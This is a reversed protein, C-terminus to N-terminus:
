KHSMNDGVLLEGEYPTRPFFGRLIDSEEDDTEAVQVEKWTEKFKPSAYFKQLETSNGPRRKLLRFMRGFKWIDWVNALDLLGDVDLAIAESRLAELEAQGGERELPDPGPQATEASGAKELDEGIPLLRSQDNLVDSEETMEFDSGGSLDLDAESSLDMGSESTPSEDQGSLQRRGDEIFDAVAKFGIWNSVDDFYDRFMLAILRWIEEDEPHPVIKIKEVDIHGLREIFPQNDLVVQQTRKFRKDIPEANSARRILTTVMDFAEAQNGKHDTQVNVPNLDTLLQRLVDHAWSWRFFLLRGLSDLSGPERAEHASEPQIFENVLELLLTREFPLLRIIFEIDETKGEPAKLSELTRILCKLVLTTCKLTRGRIILVSDM